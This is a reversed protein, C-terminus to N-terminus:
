VPNPAPPLTVQFWLQVTRLEIGAQNADILSIADALLDATWPGKPFGNEDVPRGAGAAALNKFLVKFDRGGADPQVFFKGNKILVNSPKM